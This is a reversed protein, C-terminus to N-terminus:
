VYTLNYMRVSIPAVDGGMSFCIAHPSLNIEEERLKKLNNLV